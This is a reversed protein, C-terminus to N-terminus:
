SRLTALYATAEAHERRADELARKAIEVDGGKQRAIMVGFGASRLADTAEAHFRMAEHLPALEALRAAEADQEAQWAGSTVADRHATYITVAEAWSQVRGAYLTRCACSVAYEGSEDKEISRAHRPTPTSTM